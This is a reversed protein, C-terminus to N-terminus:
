GEHAAGQAARIMALHDAVGFEDPTLASITAVLVGKADDGAKLSVRSLDQTTRVCFAQTSVAFFDGKRIDTGPMDRWAVRIDFPRNYSRHGVAIIHAGELLRKSIGTEETAERLAATVANEAIIAGGSGQVPDTFGGPLAKLGAGRNHKRTILVVHGLDDLLVADAAHRLHAAVERGDPTKVTGLSHVAQNPNDGFNGHVARRIIEKQISPDVLMNDKIFTSSSM